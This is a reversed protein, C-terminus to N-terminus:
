LPELEGLVQLHPLQVVGDDDEILQHHGGALYLM